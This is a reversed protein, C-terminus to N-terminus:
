RGKACFGSTGGIKTAEARENIVLLGCSLQTATMAILAAQRDGHIAMTRAPCAGQWRHPM